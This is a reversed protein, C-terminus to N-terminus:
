GSQSEWIFLKTDFATLYFVERFAQPFEEDELYVLDKGGFLARLGPPIPIGCKRMEDELYKSYFIVENEKFEVLVRKNQINLLRM